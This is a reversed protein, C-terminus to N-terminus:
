EETNSSTWAHVAYTIYPADRHYGLKEALSASIETHADWSPYLGRSLCDLILAAGCASALGRRRHAPHTDIEIEIGGRYRSYSSAGAALTDGCMAVVGLGMSLFHACDDFLGVFDRSWDETLCRHYLAEDIRELRYGDPLARVLAHLHAPDFVDPEKKIAIRHFREAREGFVAEIVPHWAADDAIMMIWTQSIDVPKHLLFEARPEGALFCFSGLIAMATRPPFESDDAYISGMSGDLCSWVMTDQWGDFLACVAPTGTTEVIM